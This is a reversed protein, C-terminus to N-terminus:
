TWGSPQSFTSCLVTSQRMAEAFIITVMDIILETTEAQQQM